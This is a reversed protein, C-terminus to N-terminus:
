PNKWTVTMNFLQLNSYIAVFKYEIHMTTDILFCVSFSRLFDRHQLSTLKEKTRPSVNSSYCKKFIWSSKHV